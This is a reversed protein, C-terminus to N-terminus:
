PPSSTVSSGPRRRCRMCMSPAATPGPRSWPSITRGTPRSGSTSSCTAQHAQPQREALQKLAAVGNDKQPPIVDVHTVVYIPDKGAKAPAVSLGNHQRTDTPRRSRPRWAERETREHERRQRPRRVGEPRDLRGAGRVPQAPRHAPAGRPERRRRGQPRRGQLDQARGCRGQGPDARGRCLHGHLVDREARASQVPRARDHGPAAIALLRLM